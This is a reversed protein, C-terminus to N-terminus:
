NQTVRLIKNSISTNDEIAKVVATLKNVQKELLEIHKNNSTGAQVNVPIGKKDPLPVVAETGHMTVNYGSKPGSLVGGKVM